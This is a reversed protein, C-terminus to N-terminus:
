NTEAGLRRARAFTVCNRDSKKALWSEMAHEADRTFAMGSFDYVGKIVACWNVNMHDYYVDLQQATPISERAKMCRRAMEECLDLWKEGILGRCPLDTNLVSYNWVLSMTSLVTMSRIAIFSSWSRM